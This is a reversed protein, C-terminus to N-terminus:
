INGYYKEESSSDEVTGCGLAHGAVGQPRLRYVSLASNDFVLQSVSAPEAAGGGHIKDILVYGVGDRAIQRLAAASGRTVALENLALLAPYPNAGLEGRPTVFWSELLIRRETFASYYPFHHNFSTKNSHNAFTYHNNVALVSCPSTHDRVWLLGDYLPTTLGQHDGTDASSIRGHTITRWANPAVEALPKVLGMAIFLPICAALIWGARSHVAPALHPRLRLVAVALVCATAGYTIAYWVYWVSRASGNVLNSSVALALGVVLVAGCSEAVRHRVASPLATWLEAVGAAAVLVMAVYGYVLFYGESNGPAGFLVYVAFSAVFMSVCLVIFDSQARIRRLMWGAGLIPGFMCLLTVATAGLLLVCWVFSHGTLSPWSAASGVFAPSFVTYLMFDLPRVELVSAFGGSLMLLYIAIFCATSVLLCGAVLVSAEKRSLRWLWFLGLGGIFDALASTKSAGAGLSLVALLVLLGGWGSPLSGFRWSLGASSELADSDALRSQALGTLRSQVSGTLQSQALGTLPSQVSDALQSQALGTLRSQALALLGLFFVLGLAYTPSLPLVNFIEAGFAWPRTPDLNLDTVLAFLAIALVGIWRSRGLARGLSWLQLAIIVLAMTPFLRLVVTSIPVGVVQNIAAFHIFVGIYYRDTVGTVWPLTIPWHHRVEAAWSMDDLNDPYYIVSHAHAPLPYLAFYTLALFVLAASVALAVATAELRWGKGRLVRRRGLGDVGRPAAVRRRAHAGLLLPAGLVVAVLPLLTFYGRVHLAATLAYAGMEIAYGCPWGIALVRLWGGPVPSFLLYLLCGPLLVYLAEFLLFRAAEGPSVGSGFWTAAVTFAILLIPLTTRAPGLWTRKLRSARHVVAPRLRGTSDAGSAALVAATGDGARGPSGAGAVAGPGRVRGSM